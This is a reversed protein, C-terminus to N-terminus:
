PAGILDLPRGVVPKPPTPKPQEAQTAAARPKPLPVVKIVPPLPPVASTAAPAGAAASPEGPQITDSETAPAAAPALAERRAQEARTLEELRKAEEERQAEEAAKRAKEMQDLKQSQQEVARLALWNSLANTDITRKVDPPTGKLAIFIVPKTASATTGQPVHGSLTLNADLAGDFLNMSASAAIDAGTARTAINSIRVQGGSIVFAAEAQPVSLSGMDLSGTVFERVRSNETPVGLDVARMMANFVQPNLGNLQADELSIAGQGSLSGIFAAPSRGAGEVEASLAFKGTVPAKGEGAFLAQAQAGSLAFRGGASLGDENSVFALRGDLRGGGIEGGIEDFVVDVPSFRIASRVNRAVIKPSLAARAAKLEIHGGIDTASRAFPDFSWVPVDRGGARIGMVAGVMAPADITDAEITGEVKTPGAYRVSLKGKVKGGGITGTLQDIELVAPQEAPIRITGKGSADIPGAALMGDFRLERGLPGVAALNLRAPRRESVLVRDLGVLPLLVSGDDAELSADLKVDTAALARLDTVAFAEPKGTAGLSLNIRAAGVNGNLALKGSVSNASTNELSAGIRLKATKQRSALHRLPEAIPNAFRDALAVLGNMEKADIDVTINGGPSSSTTVIQGRAEIAASGFDAISLKEISIGTPDFKLKATSQRAEFGALRARSAEIALSVERPWELGLGSFASDGFGLASDLDLEVANLDAELRAPRDGAPWVYVVRGEVSGREFDTKLKEAAIRDASLTIDGRIQWPKIAAINGPKGALWSVLMKPDNADVAASGTFGLGKAPPDLRGSLSVQTFGPARFELKDLHWTSGDSRLDGGVNQLNAGGLTVADVSVALTVPISPQLTRSFMEAFSQIAALPQRRPLEPTAILRDLDVQRASLAGQLRPREGFKFEAAGSLRAAREEAGYQFAVQEFLASQSNAKVKGTLRWPENVVTKGSALVTGAPRAMTVAGEFRPGFREFALAGETEISLPSETTDINLKLRMGDDGMRGAAVKYGYLNGETVFAGEGRFPGILSKVDGSFWIRDLVLKSNSAADTLTVRGDEINLKDIALTDAALTSNPWDIYGLSNLGVSFEPGSLKMEVARIEGRMLPGLGFEMGLSRAKLRSAEGAPGIEIGALKVSPFPLISLNIPGNVRVQLGILRSAETEFFARHESWTVFYPGVLAAVLALIIAIALGLLTTQV